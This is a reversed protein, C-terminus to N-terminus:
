ALGAPPVPARELAHGVREAAREGVRRASGERFAVVVLAREVQCGGGGHEVHPGITFDAQARVPVLRGGLPREPKGAGPIQDPAAQGLRFFARDERLIERAVRRPSQAEDFPIVPEPLLRGSRAVGALTPRFRAPQSVFRTVYPRFTIR